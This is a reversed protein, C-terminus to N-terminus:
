KNKKPNKGNRGGVLFVHDFDRKLYENLNERIHKELDIM